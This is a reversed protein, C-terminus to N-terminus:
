VFLEWDRIELGEGMAAVTEEALVEERSLGRADGNQDFEAHPVNFLVLLDTEQNELRVLLYHCTVKSAVGTEGDMTAGAVASDAVSGTTQGQGKGQGLVRSRGGRSDTGTTFVAMGKYASIASGAPSSAALRTPTVRQPPTIVEM